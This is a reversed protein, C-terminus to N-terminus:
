AAELMLRSSGTGDPQHAAIVYARGRVVVSKGEPSRPVSATPVELMTGTSAMGLAGVDGAAYGNSFIGAVQVAEIQAVVNALRAFVSANLRAELAAFPAAPM